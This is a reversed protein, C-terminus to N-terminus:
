KELEGKLRVMLNMGKNVDRWRLFEYLRLGMSYVKIVALIM